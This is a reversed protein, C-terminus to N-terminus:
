LHKRKVFVVIGTVLAALPALSVIVTFAVKEVTTFGYNISIINQADASYVKTLTETLTTSWTQKGGYSPSNLSLGGLSISAYRDIRSINSIVAAMINYNAYTKNALLTNTLFDETASAFVYSYITEGTRDDIYERVSMAALDRKAEGGTLVSSGAGAYELSTNSTTIFSSYTRLSDYGGSETIFDDYHTCYVYGTNTYIMKPATSLQAYETYYAGGLGDKDYVGVIASGEEGVGELSNDPDKVMGDGFGIGWEKLYDELNPLSVEYDKNVMIAGSYTTLYRDIKETDSVYTFEDFRSSDPLFDVTPNNIILLACDGPIRDVASIDLLKINLGRELILEAAAALSKSMESDPNDPDYYSEGHGVTFYASPSDLATLSALLSVMRYEGNYSFSNSTWFGSADVIRYRGQYTIIVDTTTIDRRSTTRFQAVAAPNVRVNVTKVTIGSYKNRMQLAMFYTARMVYNEALNDPDDCFIIEIEKDGGASEVSEIIEDLSSTMNASFGHFGEPTTDIFLQAERGVFTLLLNLLLILIIAVVTIITVLRSRIGRKTVNTENM